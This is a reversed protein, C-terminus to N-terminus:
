ILGKFITVKTCAPLTRRKGNLLCTLRDFVDCRMVIVKWSAAADDTALANCTMRAIVVWVIVIPPSQMESVPTTIIRM